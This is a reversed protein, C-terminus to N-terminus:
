VARRDDNKGIRDGEGINEMGWTAAVLNIAETAGRAFVIEEEKGGLFEATRRRAAEYAITMEASRAYVGRHVTAYDEGMARVMADNTTPSIVELKANTESLLRLKAAAEDGGGVIVVRREAVKFFAPFVDLGTSQDLDFQHSANSVDSM